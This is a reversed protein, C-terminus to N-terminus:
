KYLRRVDYYYEWRGKKLMHAQWFYDFDIYLCPETIFSVLAIELFFGMNNAIRTVLSTGLTV